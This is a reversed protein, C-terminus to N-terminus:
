EYKKKDLDDLFAFRTPYGGVRQIAIIFFAWANHLFQEITETEGISKGHHTRGSRVSYAEKLDRAIGQRTSPDTSITFALRDALQTQIPENRDRLLFMEVATMVQLLKDGPEIQYCARGYVLLSELLRAEYDCTAGQALKSLVSLGLQAMM